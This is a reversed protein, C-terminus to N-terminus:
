LCAALQGVCWLIRFWLYENYPSSAKRVGLGAVPTEPGEPGLHGPLTGSNKESDSEYYFPMYIREPNKRM